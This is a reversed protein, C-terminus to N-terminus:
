ARCLAYIAVAAAVSANLSSVSADIPIRALIDCCERTLRRLGSGESGVVLVRAQDGPLSSLKTGGEAALGIVQYGDKKLQRLTRSLNTVRAISAHETAGASTRVTTANVEACRDKTILIGGVGFAVASRVIAGFNHPDTIQDLALLLSPFNGAMLSEVSHYPYPSVKAVVGQNRVNPIVEDLEVQMAKRVPTGAAEAAKIIDECRRLTNGTALVEQVSRRGARLVEIVSNPGAVWADATANRRKPAKKSKM